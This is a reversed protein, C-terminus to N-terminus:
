RDLMLDPATASAPLASGSGAHGDGFGSRRPQSAHCRATSEYPIQNFEAYRISKDYPLTRRDCALMAALLAAM